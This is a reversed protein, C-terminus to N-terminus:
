VLILILMLVRTGHYKHLSNPGCINNVDESICQHEYGTIIVPFSSSEVQVPASDLPQVGLLLCEYGM